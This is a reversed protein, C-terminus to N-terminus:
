HFHPPSGLSPASSAQLMPRIEDTVVKEGVKLDGDLLEANTGDGLGTRVTIPSLVGDRVIWIRSSSSDAVSPGGIDGGDLEAPSFRLAEIPLRLVNERSATIITVDATMGPKLLLEPNVVDVVVDYTV